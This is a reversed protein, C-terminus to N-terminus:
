EPAIGSDPVKVAAPCLRPITWPRPAYRFRGLDPSPEINACGSEPCYTPTGVPAEETRSTITPLNDSSGL